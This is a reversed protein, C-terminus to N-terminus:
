NRNRVKKVVNITPNQGLHSTQKIINDKVQKAQSALDEAVQGSKRGIESKKADELTQNLKDKLVSV